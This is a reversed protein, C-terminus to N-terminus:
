FSNVTTDSIGILEASLKIKNLDSTYIQLMEDDDNEPTTSFYVNYLTEVPVMVKCNLHPPIRIDMFDCYDTKDWIVDTLMNIYMTDNTTNVLNLKKFQQEDPYYGIETELIVSACVSGIGAMIECFVNNSRSSCLEKQRKYSSKDYIYQPTACAQILILFSTFLSFYILKKM